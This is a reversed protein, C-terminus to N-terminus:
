PSLAYSPTLSVTKELLGLHYLETLPEQFSCSGIGLFYRSRVHALIELPLHGAVTSLEPEHSWLPSHCIIEQASFILNDLTDIQLLTAIEAPAAGYGYAFAAALALNLFGHMEVPSGDPLTHWSRLPHHLGATAKFPIRSRACTVMFQALAEVSPFDNTSLGGTRVKVAARTNELVSLYHTLPSDLPVEFFLDSHPPLHPLLPTIADAAGLKFELASITFRHQKELWPELTDLAQLSPELIISLPWFAASYQQDLHDLCIEFQLLQSLPLVFRGLMWRHPTTSYREYAAVATPLDLSAPPFFGAYDILTSLLLRLSPATM